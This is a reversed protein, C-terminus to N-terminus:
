GKVAGVMIGKVFFKQVFPYIALMPIVAVVITAYIVTQISVNDAVDIHELAFNAEVIFRRLVVQLPVLRPNRLLLMAWFFANWRGVFYFMTLTAIAATSLPMYIRTLITLDSAGDMRASEEMENPINEFFTRMLIIFFPNIAFALLVAARTDLLGLRQFNFFTPVMGASFWMFFLFFITIMKRGRLRTKSLPYAALITLIMNIATGVITYFITNGYATWIVNIEQGEHWITQSFVNRFADLEINDPFITVAGRAVSIPNSISAIMVYWLPYLTLVILVLMLFINFVNFIKESKTRKIVM